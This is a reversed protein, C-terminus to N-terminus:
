LFYNENIIIGKAFGGSAKGLQMVINSFLKFNILCPKVFDQKFIITPYFAGQCITEIQIGSTHEMFGNM